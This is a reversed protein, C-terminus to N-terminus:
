LSSLIAFLGFLIFCKLSVCSNAASVSRVNLFRNDHNMWEHYERKERLVVLLIGAVIYLVSAVLLYSFHEFVYKGHNLKIVSIMSSTVIIAFLMAFYPWFGISKFLPQDIWPQFFL